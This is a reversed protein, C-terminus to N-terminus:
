GMWKLGQPLGRSPRSPTSPLAPELSSVRRGSEGRTVRSSSLEPITQLIAKTTCGARPTVSGRERRTLAPLLKRPPCLGRKTRGPCMRPPKPVNQSAQACEPCGPRKQTSLIPRESSQSTNVRFRPLWGRHPSFPPSLLKPAPSGRGGQPVLHILAQSTIFVRNRPFRPRQSLAPSLRSDPSLLGPLGQLAPCVQSASCHGHAEQLNPILNGDDKSSPETGTAKEKHRKRDTQRDGRGEMGGWQEKRLQKEQQRGTQGMLRQQERPAEHSWAPPAEERCGAPQPLCLSSPAPSTPCSPAGPQAWAM